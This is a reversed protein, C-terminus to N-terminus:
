RQAASEVKASEKQESWVFFEGGCKCSFDRPKDDIKMKAGCSSCQIIGRPSYRSPLFPVIRPKIFKFGLIMGIALCIVFLIWHSSITFAVLLYLVLGIIAGAILANQKAKKAAEQNAMDVASKTAQNENAAKIDLEAHVEAITFEKGQVPM